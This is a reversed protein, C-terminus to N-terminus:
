ARRFSHMADITWTTAEPNTKTSAKTKKMPTLM